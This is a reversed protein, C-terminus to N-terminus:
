ITVKKGLAARKTMQLIKQKDRAEKFVRFADMSTSGETDVFDQYLAQLKATKEIAVGIPESIFEHGLADRLKERMFRGLPLSRGAHKLMQPVDGTRNIEDWGYKNQLAEAIRSVAAYGIGPRLSMRAFEPYRGCLREDNTDTMKKTVYGAVYQASALTLDGTYTFGKGWTDQVDPGAERGLGFVALHYHPRESSDGYEGVAYYRFKGAKKRFRKLWLQLDLPCLSGAHPVCDKNYTLTLFSSRDHVLAELMMRHTWIRRRNLRCPMCQGCGFSAGEKRFPKKCLM